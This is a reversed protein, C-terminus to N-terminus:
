KYTELAENLRNARRLLAARDSELKDFTIRAKKLSVKTEEVKERLAKDQPHLQLRSELDALEVELKDVAEAAEAAKTAVRSAESVLYDVKARLGAQELELEVGAPPAALRQLGFAALFFMVMVSVVARAALGATMPLRHVGGVDHTATLFLRYRALPLLNLGLLRLYYVGEGVQQHHFVSIQVMELGTNFFAYDAPPPEPEEEEKEVRKEPQPLPPLVEPARTQKRLSELELQMEDQLTAPAFRLAAELAREQRHDDEALSGWTRALTRYLLSVEERARAVRQSGEAGVRGIWDIAPLIEGSMEREVESIVKGVEPPRERMIAILQERIRACRYRLRDVEDGLFLKDFTALRHEPLGARQFLQLVRAVAEPRGERLELQALEVLEEVIGEWTENLFIEQPKLGALRLWARLSEEWLVWFPDQQPSEALALIHSLVALNQLTSPEQRAQPRRWLELAQEFKGARLYDLGMEDMANAVVFWSTDYRSRSRATTIKDWAAMLSDHSRVPLPMGPLVLPDPLDGERSQGPACQDVTLGLIRYPNDRYPNLM